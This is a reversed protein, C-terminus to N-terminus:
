CVPLAVSVFINGAEVALGELSAKALYNATLGM